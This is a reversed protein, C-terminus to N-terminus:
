KKMMELRHEREKRRQHSGYVFVGVLGTIGTGGIVGGAIQFGKLTCITGGIIAALGIILGYHLGTRSNKIESDIVKSEIQHRHSAQNEAMKLIREAANPVITNYQELIAPPPIPGSFSEATATLSRKGGSKKHEAPLNPQPPNKKKKM